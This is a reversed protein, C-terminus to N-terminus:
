HEDHSLVYLDPYLVTRGSDQSQASCEDCKKMQEDGANASSAPGQSSAAPGQSSAAPGQLLHLVPVVTQSNSSTGPASLPEEDDEVSDM